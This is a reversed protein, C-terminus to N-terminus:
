NRIRVSGSCVEEEEIGDVWKKLEETRKKTLDRLHIARCMPYVSGYQRKDKEPYLSELHADRFVLWARQATKLKKIFITQGKYQALIQKYISNMEADAQQYERHAEQNMDTQTQALSVAYCLLTMIAPILLSIICKRM